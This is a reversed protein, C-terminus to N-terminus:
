LVNLEKMIKAVTQAPTGINDVVVDAYDRYSEVGAERKIADKAIQQQLLLIDDIDPYQQRLREIRTTQNLDIFISKWREGLLSKLEANIHPGHLSELSVRSLHRNTAIFHLVHLAIRSPDAYKVDPHRQAENFYGMKLRTFGHEVQLLGAIHSKGSESLGALGLVLPDQPLLAPLQGGFIDQSARLRNNVDLAPGDVAVVLNNDKSLLGLAKELNYLYASYFENQSDSFEGTPTTISRVYSRYKQQRERWDTDVTLFVETRKNKSDLGSLKSDVVESIIDIYNSVDDSARTAFNAALQAKIMSQGREYVAVDIQGNIAQHDRDLYASTLANVMEDLSSTNFWWDFHEQANLGQPFGEGYGGFSGFNHVHNHWTEFTLMEAQTSKGTYDPGSFEIIETRM